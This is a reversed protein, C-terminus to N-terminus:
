DRTAADLKGDPSTGELISEFKQLNALWGYSDLVRQRARRGVADIDPSTALALVSDAFAGATEAVFVEAGDVAAIGEMAQPTAVVTKALAM